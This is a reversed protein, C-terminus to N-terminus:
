EAIAAFPQQKEESPRVAGMQSCSSAMLLNICHRSAEERLSHLVGMPATKLMRTAARVHDAIGECCVRVGRAEAIICPGCNRVIAESERM